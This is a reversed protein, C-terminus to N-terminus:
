VVLWHTFAHQMTLVPLLPLVLNAAVAAAAQAGQSPSRFLRRTPAARELTCQLDTLERLRVGGDGSLNMYDALQPGDSGSGYTLRRGRICGRAWRFSILSQAGGDAARWLGVLAQYRLLTPYLQRYSSFTDADGAYCAHEKGGVSVITSGHRPPPTLWARADTDRWTHQCLRRWLSDGCAADRLGRCVLQCQCLEAANLHSLVSERADDTITLLTLAPAANAPADETCDTIPARCQAAGRAAAKPSVRAKYAAMTRACEITCTCFYLASSAFFGAEVM